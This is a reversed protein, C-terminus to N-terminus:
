PLSHDSFFKWIKESINEKVAWVNGLGAIEVYEVPHGEKAYVDKSKRGEDVKVVNDQDGHIIMVPYKRKARVGRVALFGLGGSHPAIAAIKESRESALVNSFYGGMSMGTLYVRRLDINYRSSVHDFLADFYKFDENEGMPNLNWKKDIADPFVAIFTKKSALSEMGSYRAINEKSDGLGHFVFVVPVAIAGDVKAPVVLRFERTQNGVKLTEKALTGTSGGKGKSPRPEAGGQPVLVVLLSVFLGPKV